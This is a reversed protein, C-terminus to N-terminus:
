LNQKLFDTIKSFLHLRTNGGFIGHDRNPYFVSEFPKNADVLARVMEAANQFHVNDDTMGHVLLYKGRLRDAFNVPSNDEYGKPNEKDTRMFRETYATDYWKWNTVPAVAIAAKFVDAGKLICLSAMYGGYSWGFIGIRAPDVYPLSALYRAAEIQDMTEYKGLQLYTMKKFEQGRAGTGRNDVCAVIYGQQALMQFWWYNAGKWADNVQQSGPGGYVYMLVPYRTGESMQRPKIMWGNLIVNESTQFQFFSAESVGYDQQKKRLAANDEVPRVLKGDQDFVAYSPPTNISSHTAVFYQFTSSFQASNTGGQTALRKEAKGELSTAYVEREMPNRKAAQYYVWQNAEDVGYLQTVEWEGKTIQQLENGSMDYLYLHRWGDKESSWLFRRGDAFFHLDDLLNEDIYYPNQERLLTSVKGSRADALFLHLDNQHRNLHTICLQSPTATWQIRPTYSDAEVGLVIPKNKRSKVDHIFVQVLANAEGVKPYKFTQHEPYAQNTYFTMTFEKVQSEDFRLFALYRGDPSWEYARTLAFEEEYVWDSAGNIIANSRGDKTAQITKGKVLEQYYLNNGYVFAVATGQPNFQPYMVAKLGFVPTMQRSARDYVFVKSRSSYRYISQMESLILIKHEDASFSYGDVRGNFGPVSNMAAADFITEVLHGTTLDYRNVKGQELRAYHRGDKLFQFGPLGRASFTGRQWIDELTIPQQAFAVIPLLLAMSCYVFLRLM